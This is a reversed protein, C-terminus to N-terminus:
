DKQLVTNCLVTNFFNYLYLFKISSHSRVFNESVYGSFPVRNGLSPWFLFM